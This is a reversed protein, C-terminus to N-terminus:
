EPCMFIYEIRQALLWSRIHSLRYQTYTNLNDSLYKITSQKEPVLLPNKISSVNQRRPGQLSIKALCLNCLQSIIINLYM